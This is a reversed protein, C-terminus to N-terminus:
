PWIIVQISVFGNKHLQFLRERVDKLSIMAFKSIQKEELLQKLGLLELLLLDVFALVEAVDGQALGDAQRVALGVLGDLPEPLGDLGIGGVDIGVGPQRHDEM